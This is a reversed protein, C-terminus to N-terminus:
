IGFRKLESQALEVTEYLDALCNDLRLVYWIDTACCEQGHIHDTNKVKMKHANTDFSSM